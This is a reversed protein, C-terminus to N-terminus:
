VDNKENIDIVQLHHHGDSGHAKSEDPLGHLSHSDLGISDGRANVLDGPTVPRSAVVGSSTTATVTSIIQQNHPYYSRRHMARFDYITFRNQM